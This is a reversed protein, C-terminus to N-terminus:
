VVRKAQKASEELLENIKLPIEQGEMRMCAHEALLCTATAFLLEYGWWAWAWPFGHAWSMVALHVISVTVTFDLCKSAKEVVQTCALVVFPISLVRAYFTPAGYRNQLIAKYSFLQDSHPWVGWLTATAVTCLCLTAYFALQLTVIQLCITKPDFGRRNTFLKGKQKM